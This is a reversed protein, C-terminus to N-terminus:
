KNILDKFFWVEGSYDDDISYYKENFMIKILVGRDNWNLKQNAVLKQGKQNLYKSMIYSLGNKRYENLVLSNKNINYISPITLDNSEFVLNQSIVNKLFSYYNPYEKSFKKSYIHEFLETNSVCVEFIGDDGKVPIVVLVDYDRYIDSIKELFNNGDDCSIILLVLLVYVINKM